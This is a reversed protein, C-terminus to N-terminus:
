AVRRNDQAPSDPATRRETVVVSGPMTKGLEKLEQAKDNLEAQHSVPVRDTSVLAITVSMLPFREPVHRRNLVEIYGRARDESEYSEPTLRDFEARIREAVAEANAPRTLVIFDDGGIHGVFDDTQGHSKLADLLIHALSRIIDDGRAYGYHDNFAKFSDIDITLQAFPDGSALRREVEEHISLNGPLGTLPSAARQQRSWDLATRVRQLLEKQEWPKTVYDNAGGKLGGVRDDLEAKATLMIIPIHKTQFSERLRRCAEYGDMVPMMVDLLILDPAHRHAVELAVSGNPAELVEFGAGSLQLGLVERLHPEDEAILIRYSPM